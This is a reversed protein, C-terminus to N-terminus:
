NAVHPMVIDHLFQVFEMTGVSNDYIDVYGSKTILFNLSRGNYSFEDVGVRNIKAEEILERADRDDDLDGIYVGKEAGGDRDYFGELWISADPYDEVFEGLDLETDALTGGTAEEVLPYAFDDETSEVVIFEDILHLVETTATAVESGAEKVRISGDDQIRTAKTDVVTEDAARGRHLVLSGGDTFSNLDAQRDGRMSLASKIERGKEVRTTPFESDDIEAGPDAFHAIAGRNM